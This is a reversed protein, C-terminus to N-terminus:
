RRDAITARQGAPGAFATVKRGELPRFHGCERCVGM